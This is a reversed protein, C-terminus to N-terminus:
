ALFGRKEEDESILTENLVGKGYTLGAFLKQTHEMLPLSTDQRAVEAFAERMKTMVKEAELLEEERKSIKAHNLCKNVYVYLQLLNRSIPYSGNLSVMLEGVFRVGHVLSSRFAADEGAKLAEKADRIDELVIDYIVVILESRNAQSVRRAYAKISEEKM